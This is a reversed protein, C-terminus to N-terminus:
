PKLYEKVLQELAEIGKFIEDTFSDQSRDDSMRFVVREINERTEQSVVRENLKGSVIRSQQLLRIWLESICQKIPEVAKTAKDGWLVEAELVAADLESVVVGLKRWRYDYVSAYDSKSENDLPQDGADRLENKAAEVEWGMISPTRVYRMEERVKYAAILLRHALEYEAKGRLQKRWSRLGLVAVTAAVIAALGTALDKGVAILETAPIDVTKIKFRDIALIDFERM